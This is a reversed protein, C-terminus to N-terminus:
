EPKYGELVVYEYEYLFKTRRDKYYAHGTLGNTSHVIQLVDGIKYDENEESSKEVIKVWEGPKALRKVERVVPPLKDFRRFIKKVEEKAWEAMKENFLQAYKNTPKAPKKKKEWLRNFATQAGIRWSFKDAPNRKASTVKVLKDDVFMKAFTIDGTCEIAIVYHPHKPPNDTLRLPVVCRCNAAQEFSSKWDCANLTAWLDEREKKATEEVPDPVEICWSDNIKYGDIKGNHVPKGDCKDAWEAGPIFQCLPSITSYMKKKSFVKM